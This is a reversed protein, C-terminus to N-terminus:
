QLLSALSFTPHKLHRKRLPGAFHMLEFERLVLLSHVIHHESLGPLIGVLSLIINGNM